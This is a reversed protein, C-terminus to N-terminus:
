RVVIDGRRTLNIERRGVWACFVGRRQWQDVLAIEADSLAEGAGFFADLAEISAASEWAVKAAYFADHAALYAEAVAMDRESEIIDAHETTSM